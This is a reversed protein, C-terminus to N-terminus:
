LVYRPFEGSSRPSPHQAALWVHELAQAATLRGEPDAKMLHRIFDIGEKTVQHEELKDRPFEVTGKVYTILSRPFPPESCLCRYIIEGMSWIDCKNTYANSSSYGEVDMMGHQALIEPALFGPTGNFTKLVTGGEEARKSIGFDAIKVWWEAGSNKIL